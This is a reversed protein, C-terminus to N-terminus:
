TTQNTTPKKSKFGIEKPQIRRQYRESQILMDLEKLEDDTCNELFREVTIDINIVQTHKPM